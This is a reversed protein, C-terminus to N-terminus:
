DVNVVERNLAAEGQEVEVGVGLSHHSTDGEAHERLARPIYAWSATLRGASTVPRLRSTQGAKPKNQPPLVLRWKEPHKRRYGNLSPSSTTAGYRVGEREYLWEAVEEVMRNGIGLGQFDPLVVTRHGRLWGRKGMQPVLSFFGCLREEIDDGLRVVALFVRAGRNIQHTMYHHPAFMPWASITGPYISLSIEPREIRERFFRREDLDVRWDPQIWPVIDKHCSVVVFQRQQRRIFKALAVSMAKAVTRDVVSTYEDVVLLGDTTLLARTVDARFGEGVSLVQRPCLWVPPSSLGLYTFTEIISEIGMEVPFADCVPQASWEQVDPRLVRDGFLQRALLSKGTGSAGVIAGIQWPFSDLDPLDLSLEFRRSSQSPIDFQGLVRAVRFSMPIPIEAVVEIRPM